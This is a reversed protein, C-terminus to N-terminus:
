RSKILICQARVAKLIEAALYLPVTHTQLFVSVGGVCDGVRQVRHTM